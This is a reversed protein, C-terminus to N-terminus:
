KFLTPDPPAPQAPNLPIVIDYDGAPPIPDSLGSSDAIVTWLTPDEYAIAAELFLNPDTRKVTSSLKVDNLLLNRIIKLLSVMQITSEATEADPSYNLPTLEVIILTAEGALTARSEPPMAEVLGGSSRLVANYSERLADIQASISANLTFVM